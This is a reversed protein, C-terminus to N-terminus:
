FNINFFSWMFEPNLKMISKFVEIALFQLHKQHISTVNSMTLIEEYTQDYSNYVIKLSRHHIKHIKSISEKGCFMWILPAYIFQSHIFSQSLKKAKTVNLYKRIRRLAYVKYMAHRCLNDVHLKFDLQQDITVGLLVVNSSAEITTENVNLSFTETVNKGLIMFQFKNPNAKLSNIKFWQLLNCADHELNAVITQLSSGCDYITNDDAFNCIETKSLEFFLDNIFINFLLPGLISGQPVGRTIVFWSSFTSGIRTRQKRGSLYNYM